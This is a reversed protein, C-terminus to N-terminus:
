TCTADGTIPIGLINNSKGMAEHTIQGVGVWVAALSDCDGACGCAFRGCCRDHVLAHATFLIGDIQGVCGEELQIIEGDAACARGPM